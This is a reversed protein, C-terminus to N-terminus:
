SLAALGDRILSEIPDSDVRPGLDDVFKRVVGKQFGMGSLASELRQRKSPGAPAPAPAPALVLRMPTREAEPHPAPRPRQKTNAPFWGKGGSPRRQQQPRPEAEGGKAMVRAREDDTLSVAFAAAARPSSVILEPDVIDTMFDVYPVETLIDDRIGVDAYGRFVGVQVVGPSVAGRGAEIVLEVAAVAEPRVAEVLLLRTGGERVSAFLFAARSTRASPHDDSLHSATM